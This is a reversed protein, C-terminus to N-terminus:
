EAYRLYKRRLLTFSAVDDAWCAKIEEASRGEIIMKRPYDVGILNEFWSTFFADGPKGMLNYAEIIYSLDVGKSIIAENDICRLDRGYCTQGELMPHKAGDIPMPTFHFKCKGELSPHGYVEFSLETGRGLSMVTGEFFCVSPYLYVAHQTRLNPGCRTTLTYRRQHDYNECEIIRLDPLKRGEDLWGEENVMTALEGITMGHVVPIPILGVFSYHEPTIIPGDVYSGNPNPRDMVVFGKGLEAAINMLQIMSSYYTFYRLGIDQIDVVFVDISDLRSQLADGGHISAIFIGTVPDVQDPVAEGADAFDRFGHEPSIITTVNVGHEILIDLSLRNDPGSVATSNSMFGVKKGELLPLYAEPREIGLVVPMSPDSMDTHNACSACCIIITLTVLYHKMLM